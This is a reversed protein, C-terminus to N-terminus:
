LDQLRVRFKDWFPGHDVNPILQSDSLSQVFERPENLVTYEYADIHWKDTNITKIRILGDSFIEIVSLSDLRYVEYGVPYSLFPGNKRNPDWLAGLSSIIPYNVDRDITMTM